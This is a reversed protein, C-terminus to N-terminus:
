SHRQKFSDIQASLRAWMAQYRPHQRADSIMFFTEFYKRVIVPLERRFLRKYDGMSLSIHSEKRGELYQRLAFDKVKRPTVEAQLYETMLLEFWQRATIVHLEGDRLTHGRLAAIAPAAALTRLMAGYFDRFAGMIESEDIEDTPGVLAFCPAPKSLRIGSILSSGYCAAVTVLLRMETSENLPTIYECFDDWSLSTNDAFWIGSNANGHAEVHLVPLLGRTRAQAELDKLLGRFHDRSEVQLLTAKVPAEEMSNIYDCLLSGTKRDAGGLSEAIVIANFTIDDPPDAM